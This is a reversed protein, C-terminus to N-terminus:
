SKPMTRANRAIRTDKNIEFPEVPIRLFSHNHSYTSLETKYIDFSDPARPDDFIM